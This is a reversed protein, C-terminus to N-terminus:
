VGRHYHLIAPHLFEMKLKMGIKVSKKIRNAIVTYDGDKQTGRANYVTGTEDRTNYDLADGSITFDQFNVSVNGEAHISNNNKDYILTDATLIM